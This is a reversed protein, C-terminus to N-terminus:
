RLSEWLIALIRQSALGDGYPSKGTVMSKHLIPDSLLATAESVIRRTSTGILKSAGIEVAEPRETKDRLILVPVGLHPAEEQVGGSDSMVFYSKSLEKVFVPYSLPESLTVNELGQLQLRVLDRVIPNPHVPVLFHVNPFSHSLERIALLMGELPGGFSERRHITILVQTPLNSLGMQELDKDILQKASVLADIVTNGTLMVESDGFGEDFLNRMSDETACFNWKAVQSILRRNIEEPFPNTSDGTRLGAELHGVPLGAYFGALACAFATSTDGQVLIADFHEQALVNQTGVLIKSVTTTLKQNEEMVRLNFQPTIGFFSLVDDVLNTHQGSNLVDVVAWDCSQLALILPAMKIAEPRTGLCVLIRKKRTLQM